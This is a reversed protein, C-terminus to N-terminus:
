ILSLRKLNPLRGLVTPFSEIRNFSLNLETLNHLNTFAGTIECLINKSVDLTELEKIQVLAPPIRSWFLHQARLEKTRVRMEDKWNSKSLVVCDVVDGPISNDNGM